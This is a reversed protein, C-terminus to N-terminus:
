WAITALQEASAALIETRLQNKRERKLAYDVGMQRAIELAEALPVDPHEVNDYDTVTITQAGSMEALEVGHKLRVAHEEGADMLYTRGNVTVKVSGTRANDFAAHIEFLKAQRLEEVTFTALGVERKEGTTVDIELAIGREEAM